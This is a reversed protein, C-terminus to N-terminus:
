PGQSPAAALRALVADGDHLVVSLRRRAGLRASWRRGRAAGLLAVAGVAGRDLRLDAIEVRTRGGGSEAGAPGRAPLNATRRHADLLAPDMRLGTGLAKLAAEKRVWSRALAVARTDPSGGRLAGREAPSLAVDALRAAAVSACSEVDVGVRGADSVAVAILPGARTLSVHLAPVGGGHPVVEVQGHPGACVPCRARLVVDRAPRGLRAGVVGRLLARAVVFRSAQEAPLTAARAREGHALGAVLLGVDAVDPEVVWVDITPAARKPAWRDDPM